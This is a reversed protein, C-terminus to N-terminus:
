LPVTTSPLVTATVPVKEAGPTHSDFTGLCNEAIHCPTWYSTRPLSRAVVIITFLSEVPIRHTRRDEDHVLHGSALFITRGIEDLVNQLDHARDVLSPISSRTKV